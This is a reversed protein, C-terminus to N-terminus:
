PQAEQQPTQTHRARQREQYYRDVAMIVVQTYTTQDLEKLERLQQWTPVPLKATFLKM